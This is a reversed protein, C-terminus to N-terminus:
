ETCHLTMTNFEKFMCVLKEALTAVPIRKMRAIERYSGNGNIIQLVCWLMDAESWNGHVYDVSSKKRHPTSFVHYRSNNVIIDIDM